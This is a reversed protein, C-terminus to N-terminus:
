DKQSNLEGIKEQAMLVQAQKFLAENNLDQSLGVSLYTMKLKKWNLEKYGIDKAMEELLEIRHDNFKETFQEPTLSKDELVAFLEEYKKIVKKSNYFIIHISNLAKHIEHNSFSLHRHSVLTLFIDTKDKKIKSKKNEYKNWLLTLMSGFIGSFITM